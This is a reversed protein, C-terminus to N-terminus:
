EDEEEKHQQAMILEKYAENLLAIVKPLDLRRLNLIENRWIDENKKKYSRTLSVTKFEVEADNVKRKNSWISVDFNGSRWKQIPRNQVM